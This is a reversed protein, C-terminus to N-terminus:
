CAAAVMRAVRSDLPLPRPKQTGPNRTGLGGSNCFWCACTSRMGAMSILSAAHEYLLLAREKFQCTVRAAVTCTRTRIWGVHMPPLSPELRSIAPM